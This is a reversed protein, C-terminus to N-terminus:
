RTSYFYRCEFHPLPVESRGLWVNKGTVSNNRKETDYVCRLIVSLKFVATLGKFVLRNQKIYPSLGYRATFV